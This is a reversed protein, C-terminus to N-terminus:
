CAGGYQLSEGNRFKQNGTLSLGCSTTALVDWAVGNVNVHDDGGAPICATGVVVQNVNLINAVCGASVLAAPLSAVALLMTTTFIPKM